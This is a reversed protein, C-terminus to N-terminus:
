FPPYGKSKDVCFRFFYNDVIQAHLKLPSALMMEVITVSQKKNFFHPKVCVGPLTIIIM